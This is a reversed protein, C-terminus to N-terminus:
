TGATAGPNVVDRVKRLLRSLTALEAPELVGTYWREILDLHGRIAGEVLALGRDTIVAYAGRRDTECAQRTAHGSKVLRDVLRSTGSNSLDLQTALDSLRMRGQESRALRLLADFEARPLGLERRQGDLRRQLGDHTEILLGVATIRPDDLLSSPVVDLTGM